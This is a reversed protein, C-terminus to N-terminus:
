KRRIKRIYERSRSEILFKRLLAERIQVMSRHFFVKCSNHIIKFFILNRALCEQDNFHLSSREFRYEFNGLSEFYQERITHPMQEWSRMTSPIVKQVSNLRPWHKGRKIQLLLLDSFLTPLQYGRSEICTGFVVWTDNKWLWVQNAHWQRIMSSGTNTILLLLRDPYADSSVGTYQLKSTQTLMVFTSISEINSAYFENIVILINM